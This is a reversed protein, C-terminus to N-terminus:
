PRSRLSVVSSSSRRASPPLIVNSATRRTAVVRICERRAMRIPRYSLPCNGTVMLHRTPHNKQISPLAVQSSVPQPVIMSIYSTLARKTAQTSLCVPTYKPSTSSGTAHSCFQRLRAWKFRNGRLLVRVRLATSTSNCMAGKQSAIMSTSRKPRLSTVLVTPFTSFM